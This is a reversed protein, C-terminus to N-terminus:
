YVDEWETFGYAFLLEYLLVSTNPFEQLKKLDIVVGFDGERWVEKKVLQLYDKQIQLSPTIHNKSNLFGVELEPVVNKCIYIVKLRLYNRIYEVEKNSYNKRGKVNNDKKYLIIK